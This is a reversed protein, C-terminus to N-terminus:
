AYCTWSNTCGASNATNDCHWDNTCSVNTNSCDTNSCKSNSVPLLSMGGKISLFGGQLKGDSTQLIKKVLNEVNKKMKKLKHTKFNTVLKFDYFGEEM